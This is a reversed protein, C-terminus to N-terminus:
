RRRRRVLCGATLVAGTAFALGVAVDRGSPGSVSAGGLGGRVGRPPTATPAPVATPTVTPAATATPPSTAPPSSPRAPRSTSSTLGGVRRPLAECAIGDDRGRDEDLRHPDDRDAEFVAQADEQYAFDRCDLDQAHAPGAPPVIAAIALLTGVAGTRPRM